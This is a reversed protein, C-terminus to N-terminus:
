FGKFGFNRNSKTLGLIGTPRAVLPGRSSTYTCQRGPLLLDSVDYM